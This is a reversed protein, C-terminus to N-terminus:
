SRGLSSRRAVLVAGRTAWCPVGSPCPSGLNSWSTSEMVKSEEREREEDLGGSGRVGGRRHVHNEVDSVGRWQGKQGDVVNVNGRAVETECGRGYGTTPVSQCGPGSGELHLGRGEQSEFLRMAGSTASERRPRGSGSSLPLTTIMEEATPTWMSMSAAMAWLEYRVSELSERM